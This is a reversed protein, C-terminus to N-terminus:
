KYKFRYIYKYKHKYRYNYKPWFKKDTGNETKPSNTARHKWPAPPQQSTQAALSLIGPGHSRSGRSYLEFGRSYLSSAFGDRTQRPGSQEAARRWCGVAPLLWCVASCATLCCLMLSLQQQQQSCDLQQQAIRTTLDPSPTILLSINLLSMLTIIPHYWQPLQPLIHKPPLCAAGMVKGSVLHLVMLHCDDSLDFISLLYQWRTVFITVNHSYKGDVLIKVLNGVVLHCQNNLDSISVPQCINTVINALVIIRVLHCQNSIPFISLLYQWWTIWWSSTVNNTSFLYQWLTVLFRSTVINASFLYPWRAM